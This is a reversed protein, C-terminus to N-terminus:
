CVNATFSAAPSVHIKHVPICDVLLTLGEKHLRRREHSILCLLASSIVAAWRSVHPVIIHAQLLSRYILATRSFLKISSYM